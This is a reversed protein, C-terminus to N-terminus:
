ALPLSVRVATGSAPGSELSISGGHLEVLQAVIALGLGAGGSSRARSKDGRSFREFARTMIEPPMGAGDDSVTVVAASGEAETVRHAEISVKCPQGDDSNGAHTLANNVLNSFVQTLQHNDGNVILVPEISTSVVRQPNRVTADSAVDALLSSLDVRVSNGQAAAPDMHNAYSRALFFMDEVLKSMRNAESSIRRLGDDLAEPSDYAGREYLEVYGRISTLPTRLEHSADALFNRLREESAARAEVMTNFAEALQAAETGRPGSEVRRDLHGKAIDAAASTVARIPRVGLRLVWLAVLALIATTLTVLWLTQRLIQNQTESIQDLSAAVVLRNGQPNAPTIMARFGPGGEDDNVSGPNLGLNLLDSAKPAATGLVEPQIYTQLDGETTMFGVYLESIAASAQRVRSRAVPGVQQVPETLRQAVPLAAKLREDLGGVTASRASRAMGLGAGAVALLILLTAVLLRSRLSM